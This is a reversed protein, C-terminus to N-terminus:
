YFHLFVLAESIVYARASRPDVAGRRAFRRSRSINAEGGERCRQPVHSQVRGELRRHERRFRQDNAGNPVQATARARSQSHAEAVRQRADACFVRFLAVFTRTLTEDVPDVVVFIVVIRVLLTHVEDAYQNRPNGDDILLTSRYARGFVLCAQLGAPGGGVVIVDFM